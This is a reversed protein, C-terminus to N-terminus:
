KTLIAPAASKQLLRGHGPTFFLVVGMTIVITVLALVLLCWITMPKAQLPQTKKM